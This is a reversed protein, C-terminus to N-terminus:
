SAARTGDPPSLAVTGDVADTEIIEAPEAPVPAGLVAVRPPQRWALTDFGQCNGCVASWATAVAGCTDCTWAPDPAASGARELWRRASRTDGHEAEELRAWLRCIRPTLDAPAISELQLRAEGWLEADLAAEAIAVRSEPSDPAREGLLHVRKFLAVPDDHPHLRRFAAALDPHPASAWNDEILRVARKPRDTDQLLRAELSLAPVFGAVAERARSLNDLADRSRDEAAAERAREVLLAAKHRRGQDEPMGGRRVLDVLADEADAWRRARARGYLRTRAVQAADPRLRYAEEALELARADDGRDIAQRMLGVLGHFATDKDDRLAAFYKAATVTDGKLAAAQAALLRTLNPDRLLRDAERAQRRAEEADGAAVASLGLALARYGAERRKEARHRLAAIPAGIMGAITRLGVSLVAVVVVVAALLLAFHTEIRFGLWDIRVSGPNHYLWDAVAVLIALQVLYFIARRM